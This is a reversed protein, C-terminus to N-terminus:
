GLLQMIKGAKNSPVAITFWHPHMLHIVASTSVDVPIDNSLTLLGLIFPIDNSLTLLGLIFALQSHTPMDRLHIFGVIVGM